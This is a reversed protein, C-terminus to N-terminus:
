YGSKDTAFAEVQVSGDHSVTVAYVSGTDLNFGPLEELGMGKWHLLAVGIPDRHSVAIIQENPHKHQMAAAWGIIRRRISQAAEIGEHTPTETIYPQPLASPLQGQYGDIGTEVLAEETTVALTLRKSLIAASEQARQLPSAYLAQILGRDNLVQAAAEIQTQGTASLGYGPLSGYIIGNPNYVEGHRVFYITLTM